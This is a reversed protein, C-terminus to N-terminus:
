AAEAERDVRQREEADDEGGADDDVIRDDHDLVDLPVHASDPLVARVVAAISAM